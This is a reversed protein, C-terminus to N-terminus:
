DGDPGPVTGWRPIVKWEQWEKSSPLPPRFLFSDERMPPEREYHALPFLFSKNLREAVALQDRRQHRQARREDKRLPAATFSSVVSPQDHFRAGVPIVPDIRDSMPPPYAEMLEWPASAEFVASSLPEFDPDPYQSDPEEDEEIEDSDRAVESQCNWGRLVAARSLRPWVEEWLRAGERHDWKLDPDAAARADWATQSMKKVPGLCSRDLPQFEGTMGRPVPIFEIGLAEAKEFVGRTVHGPFSDLVLAFPRQNMAQHIWSLYRLMVIEDM